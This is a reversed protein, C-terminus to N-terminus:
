IRTVKGNKFLDLFDAWCRMLPSGMDKGSLRLEEAHIAKRIAEAYCHVASLPKGNKLEDAMERFTPTTTFKVKKSLPEDEVTFTIKM